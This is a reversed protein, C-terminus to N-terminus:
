CGAGIVRYGIIDVNWHKMKKIKIKLPSYPENLCPLSNFIALDQYTTIKIFDYFLGSISELRWCQALFMNSINALCCM